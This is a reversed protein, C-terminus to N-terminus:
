TAEDLWEDLLRRAITLPPPITPFGRRRRAEDLEVRGFWQADELETPHVALDTTTAKAHFGVMLSQPFPWPQSSSYHISECRLGVEEFVERAVADELSEGPEVFGALTSYMGRPWIKQRGLVARDGDHVLMIVAPDTRPFQTTSCADCHREHGAARVRTPAGCVGCYRHMSHWRALGSTMALLNADDAALVAAGERLSMLVVEDGILAGLDNRELLSADIAFHATGGLHGLFIPEGLGAPVERPRIAHSRDGLVPHSGRWVLQVVTTEATWQESIWAEENRRDSLRDLASTALTNPRPSPRSLASMDAVTQGFDFPYGRHM